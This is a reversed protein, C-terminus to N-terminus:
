PHLPPMQALQEQIRPDALLESARFLPIFRYRALNEEAGEERDVISIVAVVQYGEAEAQLIAKQASGGTTSVDDVVAVPAKEPGHYGELYRRTGHPKARKRVIFAPLPNFREREVFSVVAVASVIPDAGLSLGGIAVATIDQSKLEELILRACLYAGEPDLTAKKADLYYPSSRGSTLEFHGIQLCRTVLIKKLRNRADM